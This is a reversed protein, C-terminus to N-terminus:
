QSDGRDHVHKSMIAHSLPAANKRAQWESVKRPRRRLYVIRALVTLGLVAIALAVVIM